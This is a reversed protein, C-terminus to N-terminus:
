NRRGFLGGLVDDIIREVLDPERVPVPQPIPQPVPQPAPAANDSRVANIDDPLQAPLPNVPRRMPLPTVPLGEHVRLM